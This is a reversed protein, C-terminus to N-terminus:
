LRKVYIINYVDRSMLGSWTTARTRSFVSYGLKDYFPVGMRHLSSTGLHVGRVGLKKLHEHFANMLKGGAGMRRFGDAIDIHLHAPYIELPPPLYEGRLMTLVHRRLYRATKRDINYEARAMKKLIAPAISVRMTRVYRATDACGLLYGVTRGASVAVFASEPEYDSYYLTLMDNFLEPDNFYDDLPDGGLATAFCIERVRHRDRPRYKRISIKGTQTM